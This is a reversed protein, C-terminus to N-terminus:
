GGGKGTECFFPSCFRFSELKGTKEALLEKGGALWGPWKHLLKGRQERRKGSSSGRRFVEFSSEHERIWDRFSRNNHFRVSSRLPVLPYSSGWLPSQPNLLNLAFKSCPYLHLQFCHRSCVRDVAEMARQSLQRHAGSVPLIHWKSISLTRSLDNCHCRPHSLGANSLLESVTLFM